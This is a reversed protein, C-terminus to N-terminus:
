KVARVQVEEACPFWGDVSGVGQLRDLLTRCDDRAFGSVLEHGELAIGLMFEDLADM